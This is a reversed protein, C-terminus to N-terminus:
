PLINQLFLEFKWGNEKEAKLYEAREFSYCDVKKLAKHYLQTAKKSLAM